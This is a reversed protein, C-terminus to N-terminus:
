YLSKTFSSANHEPIVELIKRLYRNKRPVMVAKVVQMRMASPM